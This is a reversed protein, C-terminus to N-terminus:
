NGFLKELSLTFGPLVDDGQLTDARELRLAQNTDTRYVTVMDNDPEVVWLLRVGDELYLKVKRGLILAKDTPSIVEVVLDPAGIIPKDQWDPDAAQLADLKAQSVFMVDPVRSGRVWNSEYLLVFPGEIFVEGLGNADVFDALARYIRGALRVSRIVQPTMPIFEGDILEFAGQDSFREMYDELTLTTIETKDAM